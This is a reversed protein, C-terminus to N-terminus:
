STLRIESGDTAQHKTLRHHLEDDADRQGEWSISSFCFFRGFDM